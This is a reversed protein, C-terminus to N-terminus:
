IGPRSRIIFPACNTTCDVINEENYFRNLIYFYSLLLYFNSNGAQSTIFDPLMKDASQRNTLFGPEQVPMVAQVSQSNKPAPFVYWTYVKIGYPDIGGKEMYKQRVGEEAEGYSSSGNIATFITNGDEDHGSIFGWWGANNSMFQLACDLGGNEKCEKIALDACEKMTLPVTNDINYGIGFKGTHENTYVVCQGYALGTSCFLLILFFQKM